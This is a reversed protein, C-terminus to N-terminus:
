QDRLIPIGQLELKESKHQAGHFHRGWHAPGLIRRTKGDLAADSAETAGEPHPVQAERSEM